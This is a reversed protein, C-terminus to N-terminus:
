CRGSLMCRRQGIAAASVQFPQRVTLGGSAAAFVCAASPRIHPLSRVPVPRTHRGLSDVVQSWSAALSEASPVARPPIKLEVGIPLLEPDSLVGRNLTFIEESRRPDDLYRGALKALSDGDVIVHSRPPEPEAMPWPPPGAPVPPAADVSMPQSTTANPARIVAGLGAADSTFGASLVKNNAIEPIASVTNTLRSRNM